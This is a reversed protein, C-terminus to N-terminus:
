LVLTLVEGLLLPVNRLHNGAHLGRLTQPSLQLSVAKHM